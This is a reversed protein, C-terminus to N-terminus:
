TTVARSEASIVRLGRTVADAEPHLDRINQESDFIDAASGCNLPTNQPLSAAM